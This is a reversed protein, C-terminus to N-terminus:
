GSSSAATRPPPRGVKANKKKSSHDDLSAQIARQMEDDHGHHAGTSSAPRPRSTAPAAMSAATATSGLPTGNTLLWESARQMDGHTVRLAHRAEAERFGMASLAAVRADDPSSSSSRSSSSSPESTSVNNTVNSVANSISEAFRRFM